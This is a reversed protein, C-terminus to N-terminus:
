AMGGLKERMAVLKAQLKEIHKETDRIGRKLNQKARIRAYAEPNTTKFKIFYERKKEPTIVRPKRDKGRQAKEGLLTVTRPQLDALRM